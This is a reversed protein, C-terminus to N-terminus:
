RDHGPVRIPKARSRNETRYLVIAIFLVVATVNAKCFEDTM